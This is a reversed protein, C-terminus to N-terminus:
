KGLGRSNAENFFMNVGQSHCDDEDEQTDLVQQISREIDYSVLSSEDNEAM